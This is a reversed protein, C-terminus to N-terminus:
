VVLLEPNEFINGIKECNLGISFNSGSRYRSSPDSILQHWFSADEESWVIQFMRSIEEPVKTRIDLIKDMVIDGRFLMAGHKDKKGIYEVLEVGMDQFLFITGDESTGTIWKHWYDAEDAITLQDDLTLWRNKEKSWARYVHERM